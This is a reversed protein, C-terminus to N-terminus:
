RLWAGRGRDVRGPVTRPRYQGPLLIERGDRQFRGLAVRMEPRSLRYAVNLVRLTEEPNRGEDRLVVGGQAQWGTILRALSAPLEASQPLIVTAYQGEGPRVSGDARAPLTLWSNM